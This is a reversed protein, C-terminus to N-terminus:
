CARTGTTSRGITPITHVSIFNFNVTARLLSKIIDPNPEDEKLQMDGLKPYIKVALTRLVYTLGDNLDAYLERTFLEDSLGHCLTKMATTEFPVFISHPQAFHRKMNATEPYTLKRALVSSFILPRLPGEWTGGFLIASSPPM